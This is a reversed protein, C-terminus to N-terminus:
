TPILKRKKEDKKKPEPMIRRRANADLVNWKWKAADM